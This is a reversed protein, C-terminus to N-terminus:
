SVVRVRTFVMIKAGFTERLMNTQATADPKAPRLPMM